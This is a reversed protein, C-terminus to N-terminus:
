TRPPSDDSLELRMLIADDPPDRYYGARRGCEEFGFARYLGLAAANMAAVELWLGSAQESRAADVLDKLLDRGEGRGRRAPLVAIRQLEWTEDLRWAVSAGVVEGAGDRTVRVRAIGRSLEAAWQERTWAAPFCATDLAVLADLDDSTADGITVRVDVVETRAPSAM